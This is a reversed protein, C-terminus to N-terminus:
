FPVTRSPGHWALADFASQIATQATEVSTASIDVEGYRGDALTHGFQNGRLGNTIILRNNGPLPPVPKKKKGQGSLSRARDEVHHSSDRVGVLDPLAADYANKATKVGLPVGSTDALVGLAKSIGDLAYLVTRAHIFVLHQMYSDPAQGAAWEARRVQLDAAAHIDSM